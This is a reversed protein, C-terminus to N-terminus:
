FLYYDGDGNKGNFGYQTFYAVQGAAVSASDSGITITQTESFSNPV